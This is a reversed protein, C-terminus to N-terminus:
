LRQRMADDNHWWGLDRWDRERAQEHTSTDGYKDDCMDDYMDDCLDDYMNECM